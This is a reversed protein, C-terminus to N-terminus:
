SAGNLFSILGPLDGSILHPRFDKQQEATVLVSEVAVNNVRYARGQAVMYFEVLRVVRAGEKIQAGVITVEGAPRSGLPVLTGSGAGLTERVFARILYGRYARVYEEDAKGRYAEPLAALAMARLNFHTDLVAGVAQAVDQPDGSAESAATLDLGIQRVTDEPTAAQVALPFLGIWLGVSLIHFVRALM